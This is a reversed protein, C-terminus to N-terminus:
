PPHPRAPRLGVRFIVFGGVQALRGLMALRGAREKLPGPQTKALSVFFLIAQAIGAASLVLQPLDGLPQGM